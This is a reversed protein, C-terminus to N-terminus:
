LAANSTVNRSRCVDMHGIHGKLIQSALFLRINTKLHDEILNIKPLVKAMTTLYGIHYGLRQLGLSGMRSVCYDMPHKSEPNRRAVRASEDRIPLFFMSKREQRVMDMAEVMM